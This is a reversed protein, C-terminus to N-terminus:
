KLIIDFDVNSNILLDLTAGPPDNNMDTVASTGSPDSPNNMDDYLQM